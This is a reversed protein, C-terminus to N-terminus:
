FLLYTIIPVMTGTSTSGNKKVTVKVSDAASDKLGDNVILSFTLEEDASLGTPATFNPAVTANNELTVAIGGTQTWQYGLTQGEPDQSGSGDLSVVEGEYVSQDAGADATPAANYKVTIQVTDAPSSTSGDNVVLSFTLNEDASLGVPAAFYPAATTNDELVVAMGGTQTWQYSLAQGDIYASSNTGDLDVRAAGESVNRDAGADAKPM